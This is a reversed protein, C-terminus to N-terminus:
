SGVICSEVKLASYLTMLCASTFSLLDIYLDFTLFFIYFYYLIQM